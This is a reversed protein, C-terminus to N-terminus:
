ANSTPCRSDLPCVGFSPMFWFQSFVRSPSASGPFVVSDSATRHFSVAVPTGISNTALGCGITGVMSVFVCWDVSVSIMLRPACM